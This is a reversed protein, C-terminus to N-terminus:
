AASGFFRELTARSTDIYILDAIDAYWYKGFETKIDELTEDTVTPSNIMKVVDTSFLRALFHDAIAHSRALSTALDGIRKVVSIRDSHNWEKQTLSSGDERSRITYFPYGSVISISKAKLLAEAFFLMDEGGVISPDYRIDNDELFERKCMKWNGLTKYIGSEILDADEVTEALMDRPVSRNLGELQFAVVDSPNEDTFVTLREIAEEGLFDDSDLFLVYNGISRAIAVNRMQGPSGVHEHWIPRLGPISDQYGEIIERSNDTSGDDVLIMELGRQDATQRAVSGICDDLWRESNYNPTAISIAPREKHIM